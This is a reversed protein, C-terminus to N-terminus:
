VVIAAEAGTLKTLWREIHSDREGRAGGGLDFELSLPQTMAEMVAEAACRPMVARGLNTHLVTGTVNFVRKLSRATGDALERACTEIFRADDFPAAAQESLGSRARELGGRVTEVVLPRGYQAVLAAVREDNLLRDVSPLARRAAHPANLM